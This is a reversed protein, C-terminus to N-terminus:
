RLRDLTTLFWSKPSLHSSTKDDRRNIKLHWCLLFTHLVFVDPCCTAIVVGERHSNLFLDLLTYIYICMVCISMNM